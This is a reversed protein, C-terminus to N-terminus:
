TCDIGQDPLENLARPPVRQDYGLGAAAVFSVHAGQADRGGITPPFAARRRRAMRASTGTNARWVAAWADRRKLQEDVANGRAAQFGIPELILQYM